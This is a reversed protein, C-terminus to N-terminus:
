LFLSNKESEITLATVNMRIRWDVPYYNNFRNNIKKLWGLPCNKYNVLIWDGEPLEIDFNERALFLLAEKYELNVSPFAENNLDISLALAPLPISNKKKLEAMELGCSIIHLHNTLTIIADMKNSLLALVQEGYLVKKLQANPKLWNAMYAETERSLFTFPNKQKKTKSHNGSGDKKRLVTIFFGEGKTKHPFFKYGIGGTESRLETIGWEDKLNLSLTEAEFDKLMWDLNEEDEKKNFTCTSYVLIGGPKLAEWVDGIIRQQRSACLLVHEPSWEKMADEDKRFLGEGSCPADIVMVDFFDKLDSFREPDSNTVVVNGYGWKQINEKLIYARSKIVENAVLLSNDNILSLIHTSKGGPAACLDLVNLESAFDIHQIFAQELFMSSAEQVYYMGAHFLPDLTFIPREELYYGSSAWPVKALHIPNNFKAKNLRISTSAKNEYAQEFSSYEEASLLTQMQTKFASPFSASKISNKNLHYPM